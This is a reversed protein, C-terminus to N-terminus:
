PARVESFVSTYIPINIDTKTYRKVDYIALRNCRSSIEMTFGCPNYTREPSIRCHM